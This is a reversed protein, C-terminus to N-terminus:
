DLHLCLIPRVEAIDAPLDVVAGGTTCIAIDRVRGIEEESLFGRLAGKVYGPSFIERDSKLLLSTYGEASGLLSRSKFPETYGTIVALAAAVVDVPEKDKLIREAAEQFMPFVERHVERMAVLAQETAAHVIDVPQPNGIREFHIGASRELQALTGHDNKMFFTIVTGVKGARGTRGARHIYTESDKPPQTQIILDVGSIDLGRAAVDTAVLVQFKGERFGAMTVERQAQAIDGHLVSCDRSISSM